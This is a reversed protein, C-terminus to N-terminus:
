MFYKSFTHLLCVAKITAQSCGNINIILKIEQFPLTDTWSAVPKRNSNPPRNLNLDCYNIAYVKTFKISCMILWM